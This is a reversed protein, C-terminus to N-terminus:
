DVNITGLPGLEGGRWVMTGRMEYGNKHLIRLIYDIWQTGDYTKESSNWVVANKKSDYTFNCWLGPQTPPPNNFDIIDPTHTQGMKNDNHFYFEGYNGFKEKCEKISIKLFEALKKVDRYMRRTRSLNVLLVGLKKPLKAKRGTSTKYIYFEGKYDTNYGM